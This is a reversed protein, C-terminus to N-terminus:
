LLASALDALASREGKELTVHAYLSQGAMRDVAATSLRDPAPPPRARSRSWVELLTASQQSARVSIDYVDDDTRAEALSQEFSAVFNQICLGGTTTSTEPV